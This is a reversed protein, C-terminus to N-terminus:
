ESNDALLGFWGVWTDFGIPTFGYASRCEIYRRYAAEYKHGEPATYKLAAAGRENVLFAGKAASPDANITFEDAESM